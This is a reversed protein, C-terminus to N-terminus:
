FFLLVAFVLPALIRELYTFAAVCALVALLFISVRVITNHDQPQIPAEAKAMAERTALVPEEQHSNKSPEKPHDNTPQAKLGDATTSGMQPVGPQHSHHFPSSPRGNM